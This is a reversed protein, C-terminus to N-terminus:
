VVTVKDGEIELRISKTKSCKSTQKPANQKEIKKVTKKADSVFQDVGLDKCLSSMKYKYAKSLKKEEKFIKDLPIIAINDLETELKIYKRKRKQLPRKMAERFEDMTTVPIDNIKKIISYQSIMKLQKIFSGNLIKSIVLKPKDRNEIRIFKKLESLVRGGGWVNSLHNLSLPMVVIGGIVEFDIKEFVPHIERIILSNSNFQFVEKVMSNTKQQWYEIEVDSNTPINAIINEFNLKQQMWTHDFEGYQDIKYTKGNIEMKCLIDGTDIKCKSMPTNAYKRKIYVGGKCKSGMFENFEISTRQFDIGLCEPHKILHPGERMLDEKILFFHEIPIAFGINNALLIGAGNVGIVQGDLRILPGGSNGPNIPTDTQYFNNQQGSIIGKTTKMNEQGLPFGLAFTEEGSRIEATTKPHKLECFNTGNEYGEIQVIALDFFPCVGKVKGTYETKGQTPIAIFVSTANSVCHACTLIHGKNDIFFGSGSSETTGEIKFPMEWDVDIDNAIIRVITNYYKDLNQM